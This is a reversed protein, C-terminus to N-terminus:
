PSDENPDPYEVIKTCRCLGENEPCRASGALLHKDCIEIKALLSVQFNWRDRM